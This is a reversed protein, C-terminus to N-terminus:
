RPRCYRVIAITPIMTIMTIRMATSASTTTCASACLGHPTKEIAMVIGMAM